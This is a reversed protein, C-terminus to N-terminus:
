HISVKYALDLRLDVESYYEGIISHQSVLKAGAKSIRGRDQWSKVTTYGLDLMKALESVGGVADLLNDIAQKNHKVIVSRGKQLQNKLAKSM